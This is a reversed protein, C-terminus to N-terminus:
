LPKGMTEYTAPNTLMQPFPIAKVSEEKRISSAILDDRLACFVNEIDALQEASFKGSFHLRNKFNIIACMSDFQSEKNM